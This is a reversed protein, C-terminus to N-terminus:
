EQSLTQTTENEKGVDDLVNYLGNGTRYWDDTLAKSSGSFPYEDRIPHGFTLVSYLGTLLGRLIIM